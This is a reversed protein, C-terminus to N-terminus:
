VRLFWVGGLLVHNTVLLSSIPSPTHTDPSFSGTVWSGPFDDEHQQDQNWPSSSTDPRLSEKQLHVFCFCLNLLTSQTIVALPSGWATPQGQDKSTPATLLQYSIWHWFGPPGWCEVDRVYTPTGTSNEGPHVYPTVKGVPPHIRPAIIESHM